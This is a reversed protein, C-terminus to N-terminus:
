VAPVTGDLKTTWGAFYRFHEAAGNVSMNRAIRLPQGQDRTELLALEDANEDIIAAIDWLLSARSNPLMAAWEHSELAKNAAEVARDIDAHGAESVVSFEQGTAPNFVPYHTEGSAEVLRGGILLKNPSLDISSLQQEM